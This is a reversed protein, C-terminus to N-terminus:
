ILDGLYVNPWLPVDPLALWLNRWLLFAFTDTINAAYWTREEVTLDRVVDWEHEIVYALALTRDSM